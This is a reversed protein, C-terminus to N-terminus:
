KKAMGYGLTVFVIALIMSIPHEIWFFRFFKNKMLHSGEPLSATFIGYRGFLVQYLGLLLTIHSFILTFLWVRKDKNSFVRKNRWGSFSRTISIILFILIFWRLISHIYVLTQQM